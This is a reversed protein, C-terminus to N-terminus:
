QPKDLLAFPSKLYFAFLEFVAIERAQGFRSRGQLRENIRIVRSEEIWRIHRSGNLTKTALCFLCHRAGLAGDDAAGEFAQRQTIGRDEIAQLLGASFANFANMDDATPRTVLQQLLDGSARALACNNGTRNLRPRQA